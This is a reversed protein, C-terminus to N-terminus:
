NWVKTILVDFLLYWPECHKPSELKRDLYNMSCFGSMDKM